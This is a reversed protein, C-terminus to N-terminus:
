YPSISKLKKVSAILIKLFFDIEEKTTYRGLSIRIAGHIQKPNLGLATLVHSPKLEKSSCASGTSVCIGKQNLLMLLGEGEIGSFSVNINNPLRKTISGNISAGPIRLVEKIIRDRLQQIRKIDKRNKSILEIAKGMGVISAVNETGSRLNFEQGGGFIIPKLSKKDRVYLAGIGKPGYIKHGSLTLFDVNLKKVDCDLYNVAQVADTHFYIKQKLTKLFNSIEKIPQITGIENNAYMVSILVTNPKIAKRIKEVSILGDKDPDIYTTDTKLEKLVNLVAPHEISTTIIHPNNKDKLFGQLTLNNAETASGCFIIQDPSCNLFDAIRKRAKDIAVYATQGLRHISSANGYEKKLFPLMEKLVEEDIPTTSSYDLYITKM